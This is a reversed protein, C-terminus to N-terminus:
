PLHASVLNISKEDLNVIKIAVDMDMSPCYALYVQACRLVPSVIAHFPVSAQLGNLAYM